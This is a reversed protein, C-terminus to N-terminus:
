PNLPLRIGRVAHQNARIATSPRFGGDLGEIRFRLGVRTGPRARRSFALPAIDPTGVARFHRDTSVTM